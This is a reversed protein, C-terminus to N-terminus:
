HTTSDNSRSWIPTPPEFMSNLVAGYGRRASMDAVDVIHVDLLRRLSLSTDGLIIRYRLMLGENLMHLSETLAPNKENVLVILDIDSMKGATDQMTSGYVFVAQVDAHNEGLYCGLEKALAYRIRSHITPCNEQLLRLVQDRTCSCKESCFSLSNNFFNATAPM